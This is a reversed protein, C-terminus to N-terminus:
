EVGECLHARRTTLTLEKVQSRAGTTTTTALGWQWHARRPFTNAGETQCPGGATTTALVGKGAPAISCAFCLGLQLEASGGAM